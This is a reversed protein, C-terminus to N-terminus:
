CKKQSEKTMRRQWGGEIINHKTNSARREIKEMCAITIIFKEWKKLRGGIGIKTAGLANWGGLTAM